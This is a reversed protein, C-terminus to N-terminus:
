CTQRGYRVLHAYFFSDSGLLLLFKLTRISPAIAAALLEYVCMKSPVYLFVIFPHFISCFQGIVRAGFGWQVSM